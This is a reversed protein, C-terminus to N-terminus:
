VAAVWARYGEPRDYVKRFVREVCQAVRNPDALASVRVNVGEAEEPRTLEDIKFAPFEGLLSKLADLEDDTCDLNLTGDGFQIWPPAEEPEQEDGEADSDPTEEDARADVHAEFTVFPSARERHAVVGEAFLKQREDPTAADFRTM